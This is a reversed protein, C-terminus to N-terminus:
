LHCQSLCGKVSIRLGWIVKGRDLVLGQTETSVGFPYSPVVTLFPFNGESMGFSCPIEMNVMIHPINLTWFPILVLFLFWLDLQVAMFSVNFLSYRLINERNKPISLFHADRFSSPVPCSLVM